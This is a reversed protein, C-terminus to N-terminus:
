LSRRSCVVVGDAILARPLHLAQLVLQTHLSLLVQLLLPSQICRQCLPDDSPLSKRAQKHLNCLIFIGLLSVLNSTCPVVQPEAPLCSRHICALARPLSAVLRVRQHADLVPYPLIALGDFPQSPLEVPLAAQSCISTTDLVALLSAAVGPTGGRILIVVQPLRALDAVAAHRKKRTLFQGHLLPLLPQLDFTRDMQLLHLAQLCCLSGVEPSVWQKSVAPILQEVQNATTTETLDETSIVQLCVPIAGYLDVFEALVHAVLLALAIDPTGHALVLDLFGKVMRTNHCELIAERDGCLGEARHQLEALALREVFVHPATPCQRLPLCTADHNLDQTSEPVHVGISPLNDVIIKLWAVEEKM